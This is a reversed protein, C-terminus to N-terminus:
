QRALYLSYYIYLEIEGATSMEEPSLVLPNIIISYIWTNLVPPRPKGFGINGHLSEVQSFLVGTYKSDFCCINVVSMDAGKNIDFVAGEKASTVKVIFNTKPVSLVKVGEKIQFAKFFEVTEPYIGATDRMASNGGLTIHEVQM